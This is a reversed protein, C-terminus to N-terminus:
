GERGGKVCRHESRAGNPSARCKRLVRFQLSHL